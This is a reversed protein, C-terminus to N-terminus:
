GSVAQRAEQQSYFSLSLNALSFPLCYYSVCLGALSFSLCYYLSRSFTPLSFPLCFCMCAANKGARSQKTQRMRYREEREKAQEEKTKQVRKPPSM